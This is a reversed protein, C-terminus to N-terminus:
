TNVINGNATVTFPTGSFAAFTGNLQWDNIIARAINSSGSGSQWPLQYVAAIHFNHTRDFGALAFNRDFESPSNFDVAVGDDDAMNEAKSLTYAGKILLGKTFPRNIAVQLSQYRTELGSEFSNLAINRGFRAYPRSAN